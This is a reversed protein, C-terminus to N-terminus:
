VVLEFDGDIVLAHLQEVDLLVLVVAILRGRVENWGAPNPFDPRRDFRTRVDHACGEHLNAVRESFGDTLRKGPGVTLSIEQQELRVNSGDSDAAREIRFLGLSQRAPM